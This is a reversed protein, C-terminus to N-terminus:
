IGSSPATSARGFVVRITAATTVTAPKQGSLYRPESNIGGSSSPSMMYIGVVAAM